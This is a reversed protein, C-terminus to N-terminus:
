RGYRKVRFSEAQARAVSLPTPAQKVPQLNDFSDSGDMISSSPYFRLWLRYVLAFLSACFTITSLCGVCMAVRFWWWFDSHQIVEATTTTTSTSRETSCCVDSLDAAVQDAIEHAVSNSVFGPERKSAFWGQVKSIVSGLWLGGLGAFLSNAHSFQNMVSHLSVSSYLKLLLNIVDFICLVDSM